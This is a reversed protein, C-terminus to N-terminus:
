SIEDFRLRDYERALRAYKIQLSGIRKLIKDQFQKNNDELKKRLKYIDHDVKEMQRQRKDMEKMNIPHQNM